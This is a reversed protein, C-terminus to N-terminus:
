ADFSDDPPPKQEDEQDEVHRDALRYEEGLWRGLDVQRCRPSCFPFSPNAARPEVPRECVPCKRVMGRKM